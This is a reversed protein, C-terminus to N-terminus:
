TIKEQLAILASVVPLDEPYTLKINQRSGRVFKPKPTGTEECWREVAQAEDTSTHATDLALAEQLVHFRFCQPTQAGWLGSRELTKESRTQDANARKLTDSLPLALILGEDSAAPMARLENTLHALTPIPIACRAADHVVIWTEPLVRESLSTLGNAVSEARTAGGCYLPLVNDPLEPILSAFQKDDRSLVVAILNPKLGMHIRRITWYMMPHGHIPAYQKLTQDGFRAGLGAAPILAVISLPTM